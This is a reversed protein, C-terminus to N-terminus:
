MRHKMTKAWPLLDWANWFARMEASSGLTVRIYNEMTPFRRGILIKHQHFHEIVEAAPHQTDFMVFNAQPDIPKLNRINSSNLFEQREDRNRKVFEAV